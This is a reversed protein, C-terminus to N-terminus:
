KANKKGKGKGKKQMAERAATREEESLMGDGDADFKKIMEERRSHEGSSGGRKGSSHGGRMQERDKKLVERESDSLEGNGDTDYKELIQERTPRNKGENGGKGGDAPKAEALRVTGLLVLVMGAKIWVSTKM